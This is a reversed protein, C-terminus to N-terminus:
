EIWSISSLYWRVMAEVNEYSVGSLVLITELGTLPKGVLAAKLVADYVGELKKYRRLCFVTKFKM